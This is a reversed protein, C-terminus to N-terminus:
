GDLMERRMTVAADPVRFLAALVANDQFEGHAQNFAERPLLFALAFWTTEQNCDTDLFYRGLEQAIAYRSRLEAAFRPVRITFTKGSPHADPHVELTDLELPWHEHDRIEIEGGIRRVVGDLDASPLYEVRDAIASALAEIHRKTWGESPTSVDFDSKLIVPLMILTQMRYSRPTTNQEYLAPSM